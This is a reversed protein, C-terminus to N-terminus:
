DNIYKIACNASCFNMGEICKKGEREEIHFYFDTEWNILKKCHTCPTTTPILNSRTIKM